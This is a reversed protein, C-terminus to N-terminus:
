SYETDKLVSLVGEVVATHESCSGDHPGNANLSHQRHGLIM